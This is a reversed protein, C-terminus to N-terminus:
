MWSKRMKMQNIFRRSLYTQSSTVKQNKTQVSTRTKGFLTREEVSRRKQKGKFPNKKLTPCDVLSEVNFVLSPKAYYPLRTTRQSDDLQEKNRELFKSFKKVLMSMDEM